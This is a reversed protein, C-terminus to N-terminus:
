IAAEIPLARAATALAVVVIAFLHLVLVSAELGNPRRARAFTGLLAVRLQDPLNDIELM